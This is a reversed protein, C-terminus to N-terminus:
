YVNGIMFSNVTCDGETGGSMIDSRSVTIVNPRWDYRHTYLEQKWCPSCESVDAGALPKCLQLYEVVTVVM